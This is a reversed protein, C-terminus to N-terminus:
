DIGASGYLRARMVITANGGVKIRYKKGERLLITKIASPKKMTEGQIFTNEEGNKILGYRYLYYTLAGSSTGTAAEEDIRYLPAYNRCHATVEDTLCFIHFGVVNHRKSLEIVAEKDMRAHELYLLNSVPLMIDCLGTSVAKPVLDPPMVLPDLSFAAYMEAAEEKTFTRREVPFAMDMWVEKEAVEIELKGALTVLKYKGIPIRELDRMVGFAAITAHGCLEVEAEPTFYRIKFAKPGIKEVFATESHKLEAALKRMISDKLIEGETLLVVGAANGSFAKDTFADAIYIEM